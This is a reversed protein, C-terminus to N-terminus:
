QLPGRVQGFDCQVSHVSFTANGGSRISGFCSSVTAASFVGDDAHIRISGSSSQIKGIVTFDDASEINVKGNDTEINGNVTFKKDATIDIKGNVSNIKGVFFVDRSKIKIAGNDTEINGNVTFKKDATIDIKGNVSNIKDNVTFDAGSEIDITGNESTVKSASFNGTGAQIRINGNASSIRGNVTFDAKADIRIVGNVAEIDSSATLMRRDASIKVGGMCELNQASFSETEKTEVEIAIVSDLNPGITLEKVNDTVVYVALLCADQDNIKQLPLQDMNHKGGNTAVIALVRVPKVNDQAEQATPTQCGSSDTETEDDSIKKLCVHPDTELSTLFDADPTKEGQLLKLVDSSVDIKTDNIKLETDSLAFTDGGSYFVRHHRSAGGNGNFITNGNISINGSVNGVSAFSGPGSAIVSNGVVINQRQSEVHIGRCLPASALFSAVHGVTRLNKGILVM